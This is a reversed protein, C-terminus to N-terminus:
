STYVTIILPFGPRLGQLYIGYRIDLHQILTIVGMQLHYVLVVYSTVAESSHM